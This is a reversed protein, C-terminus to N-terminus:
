GIRSGFKKTLIQFQSITQPLYNVVNKANLVSSIKNSEGNLLKFVKVHLAVSKKSNKM